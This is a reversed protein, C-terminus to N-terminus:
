SAQDRRGAIRAVIGLGYRGILAASQRVATGIGVDNEALGYRHALTERAFAYRM